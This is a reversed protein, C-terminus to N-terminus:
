PREFLQHGIEDSLDAQEAHGYWIVGLVCEAGADVQLVDYLEASDPLLDVIWSTRLGQSWLSLSFRQVATLSRERVHEDRAPDAARECTVVIWGPVSRWQKLAARAAEQGLDAEIPAASLRALEARTRPGVAYFRWLDEGQGSPDRAAESAERLVVRLDAEDPLGSRAPAPTWLLEM